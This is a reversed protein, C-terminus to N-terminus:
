VRWELHGGYLDHTFVMGEAKHLHCPLISPCSSKLLSPVSMGPSWHEAQLLYSMFIHGRFTHRLDACPIPAPSAERLLLARLQTQLCSYDHLHSPFTNWAFPVVHPFALLHSVTSLELLGWHPYMHAQATLSSWPPIHLQVTRLGWETGAAWAGAPKEGTAKGKVEM